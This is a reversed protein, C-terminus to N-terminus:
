KQNQKNHWRLKQWAKTILLGLLYWWASGFLIIVFWALNLVLNLEFFKSVFILILIVPFDAIVFPYYGWSSEYHQAFVWIACVLHLVALAIGLRSIKYNASM